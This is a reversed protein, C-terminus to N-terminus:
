AGRRSIAQKEIIDYTEQVKSYAMHRPSVLTEDRSGTLEKELLIELFGTNEDFVIKDGVKLPTVYFGSPTERIVCYGLGDGDLGALHVGRIRPQFNKSRSTDHRREPVVMTAETYRNCLDEYHDKMQQVDSNKGGYVACKSLDPNTTAM